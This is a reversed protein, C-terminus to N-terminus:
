SSPRRVASATVVPQNEPSSPALKVDAVLAKAIANARYGERAALRCVEDVEREQLAVSARGEIGERDAIFQALEEFAEKSLWLVGGAEHIGLFTRARPEDLAPKMAERLPAVPLTVALLVLAANRHAVYPDADESFAALVPLSLEWQLLIEARTLEPQDAALLDIVAEVEAWAIFLELGPWAEPEDPKTDGNTVDVGNAEAPKTDPTAEPAASTKARTVHLAKPDSPRAHARTLISAFRKRLTALVPEVVASDADAHPGGRMYALGDAVHTIREELAALVAPTPERKAEEWGSALFALHGRGLAQRLPEHVPRFRLELMAREISPVGRGALQKALEDYPMEKTATVGRFEHLVHYKFAGLDWFFGGEIESMPRLYELRKSADRFIMWDGQSTSIGLAQGISPASTSGDERRTPISHLIRGRANKFKNNFLVLARETGVGNAYAYVDEDVGGGESMFDFLAFEAVGSFLYRKKMIPFIEREHREVLGRNVPEDFKARRYEMGYKEHLGEVQGHGFMPLGPMTCMLTCVGFYKDDSGFQAIATEEDPNNMFNVFRKLIEPEFDLVNKITQRYKENEERKLMNMFASNYVRHMGLSRVFYGEMMWFAEALLLTDPARQKVTDVVERWFEVPFVRDFEDQTMAYDARSPIAGGSGPLPFWLRSFHRKALTMAADFRIIPFMRAVHLITEIVAHRVEAKTYDLQATDNWPMSTGDNGHYIFRDQGTHRDHRRFVVAADTKNWYGEEIFVGVHPNESLDPGGFRYGPFPPAPAQIFWDPHNMVWEADIGVHNPVMDAALRLGRKWARYKLNEYAEHGGLEWAIDYKMLSYASAVADQDGRLQKIHKSAKSREFLGILWLGTFGRSALLDLEEDPIQDLRDIHREYKKSLQDLWVFVTKAVIVVHPMWDVDASFRRPEVEQRRRDFTMADMLPAGPGPGGQYFYKAEETLFDKAWLVRRWIDLQDLGLSQGWNVEIFKLQDLISEPAARLPALLLDLLTEGRPGFPADEEFFRQTEGVFAKYTDGLDADTVISRVPEYARNQNTLWLLLVETTTEDLARKGERALLKEPTEDGEGQQHKYIAPPPFSSLFTVLTERVGGDGIASGLQGRLTDFAAANKQRYLDIVTHFIEHVLAMAALEAPRLSTAASRGDKANIRDAFRRADGTDRFAVDGRATFFVDDFRTPFYADRATKRAHM